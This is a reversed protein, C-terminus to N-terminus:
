SHAPFVRAGELARVGCSRKGPELVAMEGFYHGPLLSQMVMQLRVRVDIWM